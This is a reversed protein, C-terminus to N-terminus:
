MAVTAIRQLKGQQWFWCLIKRSHLCYTEKSESYNLWVSISM